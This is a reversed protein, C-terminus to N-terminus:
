SWVLWLTQRRQALINPQVLVDWCGRFTHQSRLYEFMVGLIVRRFQHVSSWRPLGGTLLVSSKPQSSRAAHATHDIPRPGTNSWPTKSDDRTRALVDLLPHMFVRQHPFSLAYVSLHNSIAAKNAISEWSCSPCLVSPQHFGPSVREGPRDLKQRCATTPGKVLQELFEIWNM